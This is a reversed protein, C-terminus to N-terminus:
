NLTITEDLNLLVNAVAFWAALEQLNDDYQRLRSLMNTMRNVALGPTQAIRKREETYLRVLTDVEEPRPERAACLRLGFEAVAHPEGSPAESLMRQALAVAMEAYAPDNLLTLAQLPTNTRPRQVTCAARDPADFNIFSPYPAARRWVVYVGRRFRDEDTATKWKPANRGVARWIGNPQYPMIPPGYMEPQLLGSVALANDRILEAPMRFRPGRAYFRNSPDRERLGASFHSSQRFTASMAILKHIHKMSWGNEMLEVALWDLLKPHTPPEGQTGFDEPTTVLGTGFFGAWWRNVTVRALLPNDESVLWQALGLRNPPLSGDLDHLTEPTGVPVEDGPDLYDGRNLMRTTRPEENEVMVLTTQQIAKAESRLRSIASQIRKKEKDTKKKEKKDKSLAKQEQQLSKIETQIADYRAQAAESIPLPMSPGVFDFTVGSTKKVELPTNNFYAFLRYYDTQSFPDYKHDHCQCCELTTGLFVTGTTNVRDLVQNVRNGEPDVGAEVNCTPTRHFGTAIKQDLTADPLLDGALQEVVFRDFPMDANFARIVYDRYAWSDRIQDAQFGNSDAYRAVDLWRVAWREGYQESALLRDVLKEYADPSDDGVFREVEDPSPPLGILALSVRRILKGRDAEPSPSLSEEHLKAAVFADIANHGWQPESNPLPSKGPKVYAWHRDDAATDPWEAGQEIWQRITAIEARSLPDGDLPMVDGLSSDTLRGFLLSENPQGAQIPAVGSDSESFASTRNSLQFGGESNKRGHCRYCHRRFIPQVDRAFQITATEDALLDRTCDLSVFFVIGLILKSLRM